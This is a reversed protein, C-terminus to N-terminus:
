MRRLAYIIGFVILVWGWWPISSLFFGFTIGGWLGLAIVVGIIILLVEGTGIM